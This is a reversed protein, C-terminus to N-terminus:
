KRLVTSDLIIIIISYFNARKKLNNTECRAMKRLGIKWNLFFVSNEKINWLITIRIDAFLCSKYNQNIIRFLLSIKLSFIGKKDKDLEQQKWKRKKKNIKSFFWSSNRM